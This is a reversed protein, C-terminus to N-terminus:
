GQRQSTVASQRGPAPVSGTRVRLILMVAGVVFLPVGVIALIASATDNSGLFIEALTFCACGAFFVVLALLSVATWVGTEHEGSPSPHTNAM